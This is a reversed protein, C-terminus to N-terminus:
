ASSPPRSSSPFASATAPSRPSARRPWRTGTSCTTTTRRSRGSSGAPKPTSRSRRIRGSTTARGGSALMTQVRPIRGLFITGSAEDVSVIGWGGGGSIESPNRGWSDGGPQGAEPVLRTNWVLKGTRLDFARVGGQSGPQFNGEASVVINKYVLPPSANTGGVSITGDAQPFGFNFGGDPWDTVPVGTKLDFGLIRGARGAIIRPKMTGDGAWYSLGRVRSVRAPSKWRWIPDGNVPDLAVIDGTPDSVYLMGDILLPTNEWGRGTTGPNYIWVPKLQAVNAPTIQALPSFHTQAADAGWYKWETPQANSQASVGTMVFAVGALAAGTTAAIALMRTSRRTM